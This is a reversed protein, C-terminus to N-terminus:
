KKVLIDQLAILAVSIVVLVAGIGAVYDPVQHMILVQVAYALVIELSRIFSVVTPDIMQLSKTM